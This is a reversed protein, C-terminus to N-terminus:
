VPLPGIFPSDGRGLGPEELGIGGCNEGPRGAEGRGDGPLGLGPTFENRGCAEGTGVNEAFLVGGTEFGPVGTVGAKLGLAAGGGIAFDPGSRLFDIAFDSIESGVKIEVVETMSVILRGSPAERMFPM